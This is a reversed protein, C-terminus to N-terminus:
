HKSVKLTTDKAKDSWVAPVSLVFQKDLMEFYSKPLKGEITKLAHQYMAAIFDSAIDVPPKALKKLEAQTATTGSADFLPREQDPDLLLKIGVINKEMNRDLDYGWTLNNKRDYKL